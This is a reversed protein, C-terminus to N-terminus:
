SVTRLIIIRKHQLTKEVFRSLRVKAKIKLKSIPVGATAQPARDDLLQIESKPESSRELLPVAAVLAPLLFHLLKM